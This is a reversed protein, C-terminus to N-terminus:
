KITIEGANKFNALDNIIITEGPTLGEVIEVYNFNSLGVKVTRRVAKGAETLVFVDQAAGGRFASGNRVRIVRQHADTILHLDVKMNPRLLASDGAENLAVEFNVVNNSVAPLVNLLMGRLTKDGAQVLVPMGAKLQGAYNDSISGMIKFSGLDAIRALIEGETVSAGLNTLVYTLVGARTAVVDAQSLRQEFERLEKEQIHATIETERISLQMSAQRSRIDNELQRKELEAIRLATEAQAIAERTGGGAQFLRRANELDAKLSTIRYAKISDEIKIDYFSKDLDLRTKVISNRKLALGDQQKEYEVQTFTKDLAMIKDGPKLTAGASFFVQQLVAPIPSTIVQEFVPLVEGTAALTNEVDGIEVTATRIDASSLKNSLASRMAWSLLLLGAVGLGVYTLIKNRRKKFTQPSIEKDM